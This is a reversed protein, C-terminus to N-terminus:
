LCANGCFLRLLHPMREGRCVSVRIISATLILFVHGCFLRGWFACEKRCRWSHCLLSLSTHHSHSHLSWRLSHPPLSHPFASAILPAPSLSVEASFSSSEFPGQLVVTKCMHKWADLDTASSAEDSDLEPANGVDDLVKMYMDCSCFFRSTCQRRLMTEEPDLDFSGNAEDFVEKHMM